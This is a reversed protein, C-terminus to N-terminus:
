GGRGRLPAQRVESIVHMGHSGLDVTEGPDHESFPALPPVRVGQMLHFKGQSESLWAHRGDEFALHWEDWTGAGHDLQLRGVVVFRGEEKLRGELGLSLVSPTPIPQAVQGLTALDVGQRVAASHCHGCIAMVSDGLRFSVPAGCSPCPAQYGSLETSM